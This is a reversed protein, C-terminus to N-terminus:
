NRKKDKSDVILNDMARLVDDKGYKTKASFGITINQLIDQKEKISKQIQSKKLCDIKTLINITPIEYHQLWERMQYDNKQIDHRADILHIAGIIEKRNLLYEEIRKRWKKMEQESRKAYGYGPLDTLIFDENIQYLNILRTKGPTKSIYALKKRNCVANIFSSKGVNSRGIMVLEVLGTKPAEKISPASILFQANIIKIM